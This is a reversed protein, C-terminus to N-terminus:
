AETLSVIRWGDDDDAPPEADADAKRSNRRKKGNRPRKEHEYHCFMCAYGNNCRGKPYFCCRSCQGSFHVFSGVSPPDLGEQQDLEAELTSFDASFPQTHLTQLSSAVFNDVVYNSTHDAVMSMSHSSMPDLLRAQLPSSLLRFGDQSQPTGDSDLGKFDCGDDTTSPISAESVMATIKNCKKHKVKSSGVAQPQAHEDADRWLAKIADPVHEQPQHHVWPSPPLRDASFRAISM